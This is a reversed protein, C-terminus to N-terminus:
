RGGLLILRLREAPLDGGELSGRETRAAGRDRGGPDAEGTQKGRNQARSTQTGITPRGSLQRRPSPEAPRGGNLQRRPSAEALRGGSPQRRQAAEAPSGGSPQRRQAAEAPSGGSPQRRQAAEILQSEGPRAEVSRRPVSRSCKVVILRKARIVRSQAQRGAGSQRRPWRKCKGGAGANVAPDRKPPSPLKGPM